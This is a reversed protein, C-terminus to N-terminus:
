KECIGGEIPQSPCSLGVGLTLLRPKCFAMKAPKESVLIQQM